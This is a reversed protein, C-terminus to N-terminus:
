PHKMVFGTCIFSLLGAVAPAAWTPQTLGSHRVPGKLKNSEIFALVIQQVPVLPQTLAALQLLQQWPPCHCVSRQALPGLLQQAHQQPVLGRQHTGSPVPQLGQDRQQQVPSWLLHTTLVRGQSTSTVGSAALGAQAAAASAVLAPAHVFLSEARAPAASRM